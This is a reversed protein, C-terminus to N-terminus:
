PTDIIDWIIQDHYIFDYIVDNVKREKVAGKSSAKM